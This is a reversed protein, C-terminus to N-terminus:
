SPPPLSLRQAYKTWVISSTWLFYDWSLVATLPVMLALLEHFMATQLGGVDERVNKNIQRQLKQIGHRYSWLSTSRRGGYVFNAYINSTCHNNHAGIAKGNSLENYWLTNINNACYVETIEVLTM